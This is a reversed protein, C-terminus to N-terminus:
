IGGVWGGVWGCRLDLTNGEEEKAGGNEASSQSLIDISGQQDEVESNVAVNSDVNSDLTCGVDSLSQSNTLTLEEFHVLSSDRSNDREGGTLLSDIEGDM